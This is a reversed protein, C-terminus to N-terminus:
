SKDSVAASVVPKIFVLILASAILIVGIIIMIIFIISMETKEPKTAVLAPSSEDEDAANQMKVIISEVHNNSQELILNANNSLKASDIYIANSQVTSSAVKMIRIEQQYKTKYLYLYDNINEQFQYALKSIAEEMTLKAEGATVENTALNFVVEDDFDNSVGLYDCLDNKSYFGDDYKFRISFIVQVEAENVDLSYLQDYFCCLNFYKQVENQQESTLTSNHVSVVDSEFRNFQLTNDSALVEGEVTAKILKEIGSKTDELSIM